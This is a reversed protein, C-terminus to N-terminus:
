TMVEMKDVKSVALDLIKIAELKVKHRDTSVQSLAHDNYLQLNHYRIHNGQEENISMLLIDRVDYGTGNKGLEWMSSGIVIDQWKYNAGLIAQNVGLALAGGLCCGSIKPGPFVRLGMSIDSYGDEKVRAGAADCFLVGSIWDLNDDHYVSSAFRLSEIIDEKQRDNALMIEM